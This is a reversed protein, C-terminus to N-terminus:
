SPLELSGDAALPWRPNWVIEWVHGDPDALWAAHGGWFTDAPPKLVSGGAAQWAAAVVAVEERARVNHSLLVTGVGSGPDARGLEAALATRSWLALVVGGARYFAVDAKSAGSPRFGLREYFARARPVDAVGLTVVSLRPEM